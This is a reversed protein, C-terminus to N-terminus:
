PVLKVHTFGCGRRLGTRGGNGFFSTARRLGHDNKHDQRRDPISDPLLKELWRGDRFTNHLEAAANFAVIGSDSRFHRAADGLDAEALAILHLRTVDDGDKVIDLGLGALVLHPRRNRFGFSALGLRLMGEAKALFRSAPNVAVLSKAVRHTFRNVLPALRPHFVVRQRVPKAEYGMRLKFEDVSAPADLSRMGYFIGRINPRRILTQTVEFSLANNAHERLYDRHCQQYLMYGWGDMQFTLLTAALRHDVEAAWVEFGELGIAASNKRHWDDKTEPVRRQQRALTDVRLAWGEEIYRSFPIQGVTCSRLGRRVNKRAWSGLTELDYDPGAFVVHYGGTEPLRDAPTSYRLATAGHRSVM